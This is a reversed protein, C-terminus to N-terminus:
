SRLNIFDFTVMKLFNFTVLQADFFLVLEDFFYFGLWLRWRWSSRQKRLNNSFRNNIIKICGIEFSVIFTHFYSHRTFMFGHEGFLSSFKLFLNLFQFVVVGSLQIDFLLVIFYEFIHKLFIFILQLTKIDQYVLSVWFDLM